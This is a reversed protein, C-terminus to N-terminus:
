LLREKVTFDNSARETQKEKFLKNKISGKARPENQSTKPLLENQKGKSKKDLVDGLPRRAPRSVETQDERKEQGQTNQKAMFRQASPKVMTETPARSLKSFLSTDPKAPCRISKSKSKTKSKQLQAKALKSKMKHRVFKEEARTKFNAVDGLIMPTSQVTPHLLTTSSGLSEIKLLQAKGYHVSESEDAPHAPVLKLPLTTVIKPKLAM